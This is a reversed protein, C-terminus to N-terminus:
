FRYGIFFSGSIDQNKVTYDQNQGNVQVTHKSTSKAAGFSVGLFPSEPGDAFILNLDWGTELIKRTSSTANGQYEIGMTALGYGAKGVAEITLWDSVQVVPGLALHGTYTQYKMIPGTGSSRNNNYGEPGAGDTRPSRRRDEIAIGVGYSVGLWGPTWGRQYDLFGRGGVDWADTGTFDPGTTGITYSGKNGPKTYGLRWDGYSTVGADEAWAGAFILTAIAACIPRRM